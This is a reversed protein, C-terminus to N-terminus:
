RRRRQRTSMSRFSLLSVAPSTPLIVDHRQGSQEGRHLRFQIKRSGHGTPAAVHTGHGPHLPGSNRDVHLGDGPEPGTPRRILIPENLLNIRPEAHKVTPRELGLAPGTPQGSATERPGPQLGPFQREVIVTEALHGTCIGVNGQHLFEPDGQGLEPERIQRNAGITPASAEQTRESSLRAPVLRGFGQIAYAQRSGPDPTLTAIANRNRQQSNRRSFRQPRSAM